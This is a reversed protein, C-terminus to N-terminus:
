GITYQKNVIHLQSLGTFSFLNPLCIKESEYLQMFSCYKSHLSWLPVNFFIPKYILTVSFYIDLWSFM